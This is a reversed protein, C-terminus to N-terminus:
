DQSAPTFVGLKSFRGVLRGGHWLEAAAGGAQAQRAQEIAAPDDLAEYAPGLQLRGADGVLYVRYFRM